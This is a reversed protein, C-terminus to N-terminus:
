KESLTLGRVIHRQFVAILLLPIVTVMVAGSMQLPFNPIDEAYGTELRSLGVVATQMEPSTAAIMPWFYQTWAGIFFYIFLSIMPGKSLPLLIDIMFRIPGAGDMTAAKALDMPLQRMFQVLILTGAGTSMLPLAVGWYTDLLNLKLDLNLGMLTGLANLPLAVNATVQYATIVMLELPLMISALVLAYILGGSRSVFFVISFSTTFALICRGGSAILSIIVSNLTQRPLLTREWVEALNAWFHTGPRLSFNNQLFTQYSQTSTILVFLLPLLIFACGLALVIWAIRNISRRDEVMEGNM